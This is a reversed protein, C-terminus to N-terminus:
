YMERRIWNPLYDSRYDSIWTMIWVVAAAALAGFSLYMLVNSLYNNIFVFSGYETVSNLNKNIFTFVLSLLMVPLAYIGGRIGYLMGWCIKELMIDFSRKVVVYKRLSVLRAMRVFSSVM